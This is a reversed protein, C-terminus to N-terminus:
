VKKLIADKLRQWSTKNVNTKYGHIILIYDKSKNLYKFSNADDLSLIDYRHPNSKTYLYFYPEEQLTQTFTILFLFISNLRSFKIM